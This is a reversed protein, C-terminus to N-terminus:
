CNQNKKTLNMAVVVGQEQPVIMVQIEGNVTEDTMTVDYEVKIPPINWVCIPFHLQNTKVHKRLYIL